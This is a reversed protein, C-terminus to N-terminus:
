RHRRPALSLMALMFVATAPEPVNPAIPGTYGSFSVALDADDVDGDGDTDGDATTKGAGGPGTYNSFSVALDADDIDSDGDADGPVPPIAHPVAIVTSVDNGLLAAMSLVTASLSVPIDGFDSHFTLMAEYDGPQESGRFRVDFFWSPYIDSFYVPIFGPLEFLAADPGSLSFSEMAVTLGNLGDLRVEIADTFELAVDPGLGNFAIEQQGSSALTLRVPLSSAQGLIASNRLAYVSGFNDNVVGDREAGIVILNDDMSMAQAFRSSINSTPAGIRALQRGTDPDFVIVVGGGGLRGDSKPLGLLVLEGNTAVSADIGQFGLDEEPTLKRLMAGSSVSFLYAASTTPVSSFNIDSVSLVALDGHIAVRRGLRYALAPDESVTLYHLQQQTALDYLFAGNGGRTGVLLRGDDIAVSGGFQSVGTVQDPYIAALEEGSGTDFVYVVGTTSPMSYDTIDSVVAYAGEVAVSFGFDNSIPSSSPVLEHLIAGTRSDLLLAPAQNVIGAAIALDGQIAVSYGLYKTAGDPRIKVVPLGTDGTYLYAAGSLPGIDDDGYAGVILNNGDIAVSAGFLDGQQKDPAMLPGTVPALVEALLDFMFNEGAQGFVAGQDTLLTLTANKVGPTDDGLFAIALDIDNAKSILTGPTFGNLTFLAADPGSIVGSLLTLGVLADDNPLDSTTNVITLTSNAPTSLTHQGFDITTGPSSSSEFVPGVGKGAVNLSASEGHGTNIAIVGSDPGRDIPAYTINRSLAQGAALPQATTAVNFEGGPPTITFTMTSGPDGANELTFSQATSGGIRAYGLDVAGGTAPTTVLSPLPLIVEAFLDFVFPDGTQGFPANQDTWLTLTASKNGTTADANFGIALDQIGGKGLVSGPVFGGLSFLSADEGTISANLLTLGVLEEATPNDQTGNSISLGRSSTGHTFASGLDITSGPTESSQFVPGVGTGSLTWGASQGNSSQFSLTTSDTGRDVPAYRLDHPFGAGELLDGTDLPTAQSFEGSLSTFSGALVSGAEGANAVTVQRSRMTLGGGARVDGFGITGGNAPDVTLLPQPVASFSVLGNLAGNGQQTNRSRLTYMSLALMYQTGSNLIGTEAGVSLNYSSSLDGGTNSTAGQRRFLDNPSGAERLAIDPNLGSTPDALPLYSWNFEEISYTLDVTPTFFLTMSAYQSANASIGPNSSIGLLYDAEFAISNNGITATGSTTGFPTSVYTVGFSEIIISANADIVSEGSLGIASGPDITFLEARANTYSVVLIPLALWCAARPCLVSGASLGPVKGTM